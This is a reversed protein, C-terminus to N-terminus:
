TGKFNAYMTLNALTQSLCTEGRLYAKVESSIIIRQPFSELLVSSVWFGLALWCHRLVVNWLQGRVAFPEPLFWLRTKRWCDPNSLTPTKLTIVIPLYDGEKLCGWRGWFWSLSRSRSHMGSLSKNQSIRSSCVDCPFFMDLIKVTQHSFFKAIRLTIFANLLFRACKLM